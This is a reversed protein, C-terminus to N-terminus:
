YVDRKYRKTKKMAEVYELAQEPTKGGETQVIRILEQHVDEAMREKDGCVFFEAGEDIRKWLDHANERM